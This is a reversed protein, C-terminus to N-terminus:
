SPNPPSELTSLCVFLCAISVMAFAMNHSKNAEFLNEGEPPGATSSAEKGSWGLWEYWAAEASKRDEGRPSECTASRLPGRWQIVSSPWLKCGQNIKECWKEIAVIQPSEMLLTSLPSLDAYGRLPISLLVTMLSFLKSTIRMPLKMSDTVDISHSLFSLTENLSRVCDDVSRVDSREIKGLKTTRIHWSSCRGSIFNLGYVSRIMPDTYDRYVENHYYLMYHIVNLLKNEMYDSAGRPFGQMLTEESEVQNSYEALLVEIVESGNLITGNSSFAGPLDRVVPVWHHNDLFKPWLLLLSMCKAITHSPNDVTEILFLIELTRPDIYRRKRSKDQSFVTTLIDLYMASFFELRILETECPISYQTRNQIENSYKAAESM